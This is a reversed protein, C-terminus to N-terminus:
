VFLPLQLTKKERFFGWGAFNWKLNKIWKFVKKFGQM